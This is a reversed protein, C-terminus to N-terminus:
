KKLPDSLIPDVRRPGISVPANGKACLWTYDAQENAKLDIYDPPPNAIKYRPIQQSTMTGVLASILGAATVAPGLQSASKNLANAASVATGGIVAPYGAWKAIVSAPHKEIRMALIDAGQEISYLRVEPFEMRVTTFPVKQPGIGTVHINLTYAAIGHGVEPSTGASPMIQMQVLVQANVVAACLWLGIRIM